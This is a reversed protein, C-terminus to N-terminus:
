RVVGEAGDIAYICDLIRSPSAKIGVIKVAQDINNYVLERAYDENSFKMLRKLVKEARKEVDASM